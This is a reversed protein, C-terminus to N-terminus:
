RIVPPTGSQDSSIRLHLLDCAQNLQAASRDARQHQANRSCITPPILCNSPISPSSGGSTETKAWKSSSACGGDYYDDATRHDVCQRIISTRRSGGRIEPQPVDRVSQEACRLDAIAALATM